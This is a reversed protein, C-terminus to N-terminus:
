RNTWFEMDLGNRLSSRCRYRVALQGRDASAYSQQQRRGIGHASQLEAIAASLTCGCIVVLDALQKQFMALRRMPVHRMPDYRMPDYRMRGASPFDGRSAGPLLLMCAIWAVLGFTMKMILGVVFVISRDLSDM